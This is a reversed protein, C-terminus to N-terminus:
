EEVVLNMSRIAFSLLRWDTGSYEGPRFNGAELALTLEHVGAPLDLPIRATEGQRIAVPPLPEGNLVPLLVGANGVVQGEAPAYMTNPVIELTASVPRPVSLFLTAPSQAWRWEPEARYWNEKLGLVPELEIEEPAPLAYVTVLEDDVLPEQGALFLDVFRQAEAEGWSDPTFYRYGPQPKHRVVYRYGNTALDFLSNVSCPVPVGNTMVDADADKFDPYLCPFVPHENYVRSLYGAAIGKGHTMQYMQYYSYYGPYWTAETPRIPLDLVGYMEPDDALQAYFSPMARLDELPWDRPWTEVLLLASALLVLPWMLRSRRQGLANLGWAAAMGFAVYGIMMFRGSARMFNLGPLEILFAFPLIIPLNYDTFITDNLIKFTPGLAFVVCIALFVIWPLSRKRDAVLGVVCLIMGTVSLSIATEITNRVEHANLFDAVGKGFFRSHTAPLFVQVADPQNKVAETSLSTRVAENQSALYTALFMPGVIVLLSAGLWVLRRLLPLWNAREGSIFAWLMFFGMALAAFVFQYGSHLLTGLLALATGVAWWRSRSLDLTHLLALLVLPILGLFAKTMHGYIGNLHMPATLLVLGAFFSVPRNLGVGRALLYMFYGTLVLSILLAGNHAAEAGWPWFPLSFVGTVPGLGHTLLSAGVPYYLLEAEFLPQRGLFAEKTHWFIWLNHRADGGSSAISTTFHAVMPWSLAVSFLTYLLLPLGHEHLGATVWSRWRDRGTM